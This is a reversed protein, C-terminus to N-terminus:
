SREIEVGDKTDKIHYGKSQILDRLEDSKAWDKNNRAEKRQEVLDLIEKPIEEQQKSNVEEIKLGLVTDFKALLDAWKPSKKEQRVVDWVIGM